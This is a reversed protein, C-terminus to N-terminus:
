VSVVASKPSEPGRWNATAPTVTYQWTGSPVSSETCTLGVITGTCASLITQLVGTSANYRKIIYGAAAVGGNTYSSATWTVKVKHGTVSGAPANGAALAKAQAAGPGSGHLAWAAAAGGPFAVVAVVLLLPLFRRHV